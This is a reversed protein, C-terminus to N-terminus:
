GKIHLQKKQALALGKALNNGVIVEKNKKSQSQCVQPSCLHKVIYAVAIALLVFTLTSDILTAWTSM